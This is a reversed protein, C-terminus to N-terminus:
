TSAARYTCGCNHNTQALTESLLCLLYGRYRCDYFSVNEMAKLPTRSARASDLSAVASEFLYAVAASVLIGVLLRM